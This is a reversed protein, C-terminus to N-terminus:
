NTYQIKVENEKQLRITNFVCKTHFFSFCSTPGLHLLIWFYNVYIVNIDNQLRNQGIVWTNIFSQKIEAHIDHRICLGKSHKNSSICLVSSYALTKDLNLTETKKPMTTHIEQGNGYSRGARGCGSIVLIFETASPHKLHDKRIICFLFTM